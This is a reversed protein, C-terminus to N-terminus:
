FYHNTATQITISIETALTRTFADEASDPYVGQIVKRSSEQVGAAWPAVYGSWCCRYDRVTSQRLRFVFYRRIIKAIYM